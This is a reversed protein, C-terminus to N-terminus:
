GGGDSPSEAADRAQSSSLRVLPRSRVAALVSRIRV